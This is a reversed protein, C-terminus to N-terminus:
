GHRSLTRNGSVPFEPDDAACDLEPSRPQVRHLLVLRWRPFQNARQQVCLDDSVFRREDNYTIEAHAQYGVGCGISPTVGTDLGGIGPQSFSGNYWKMFTPSDVGLRARAARTLGDYAGSAPHHSTLWTSTITTIRTWTSSPARFLMAKPM